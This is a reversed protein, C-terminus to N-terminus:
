GVKWQLAPLRLSSIWSLLVLLSSVWLCAQMGETESRGLMFVAGSLLTGALRGAANAMYYFGVDLSVSQADTYALVMYSHISSNMAFVVGFAALGATIAVAVDVERWLAMAILAPIATLLASWFQVASVGPSTTQGWFRRLGPASGQVIGYGIM